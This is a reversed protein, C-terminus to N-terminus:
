EVNQLQERIRELEEKMEVVYQSIKSNNSKSAITNIERNLEQTLFGLRRGSLERSRVNKRFYDVHSKARVIEESIDLKDALLIIEYELRNKDIQLNGNLQDYVKKSLKDKSDKINKGSILNIKNLKSEIAVLRKLIDKELVKGEALKMKYLDNVARSIMKKLNEWEGSLESNQDTTFIESFNLLHELKIEEKSNIADRIQILLNYLSRINELQIKLLFGNEYDKDLSVVLSIKGRNISSSVLEKIENEKDIFALPLRTSIDLFKGNVSRIEITVQRKKLKGTLKGFGTMSVIM